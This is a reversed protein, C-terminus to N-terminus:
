NGRDIWYVCVSVNIGARNPVVIRKRNPAKGTMKEIQYIVASLRTIGFMQIAQLSTITNGAMLYEYVLQRQYRYASADEVPEPKVLESPLDAKIDAKKFTLEIRDLKNCVDRRKGVPLDNAAKRIERILANM